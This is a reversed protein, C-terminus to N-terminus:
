AIMSSSGSHDREGVGRGDLDLVEDRSLAVVGQRQAHGHAGTAARSEAVLHEEVGVDVVVVDRGVVGAHLDHDIRRAGLEEVAGREVVLVGQGFGTEGVVVGVGGAGAPAARREGARPARRTRRVEEAAAVVAERIV